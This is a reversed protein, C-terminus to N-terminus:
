AIGLDAAGLGLRAMGLGVASMAGAETATRQQGM